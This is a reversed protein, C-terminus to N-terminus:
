NIRRKFLVGLKDEVREEVKSKAEDKLAGEALNKLRGEIAPDRIYFVRYHLSSSGFGRSFLQPQNTSGCVSLM